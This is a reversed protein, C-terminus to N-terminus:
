GPQIVLKWYPKIKVNPAGPLRRWETEALIDTDLFQLSEIVATKLGPYFKVLFLDSKAHGGCIGQSFDPQQPTIVQVAASAGNFLLGGRFRVAHDSYHADFLMRDPLPEDREPHRFPELFRNFDRAWWAALLRDIANTYAKRDKPAPAKCATAPSSLFAGAVLAGAIAQRRSIM